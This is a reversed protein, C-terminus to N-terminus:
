TVSGLSMTWAAFMTTASRVRPGFLKLAAARLVLQDLFVQAVADVFILFFECAAAHWRLGFRDEVTVFVLWSCVM